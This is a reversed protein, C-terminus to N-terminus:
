LTVMKSVVDPSETKMCMKLFVPGEGGKGFFGRMMMMRVKDTFATM